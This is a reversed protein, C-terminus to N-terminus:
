EFWWGPGSADADAIISGMVRQWVQDARVPSNGVVELFMDEPDDGYTM